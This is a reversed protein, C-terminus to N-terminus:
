SKRQWAFAGLGALGSGLLLITSPEPVAAKGEYAVFPQGLAVTSQTFFLDTGGNVVSTAAYSFSSVGLTFPDAAIQGDTATHYGLDLAALTISMGSGLGTLLNNVYGTRATQFGNWEGLLFISHGAALFSSLASIEGATFADDPMPAVFLDKGSLVTADVTGTYLTSSM